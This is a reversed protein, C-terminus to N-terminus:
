LKPGRQTGACAGAGRCGPHTSRLPPKGCRRSGPAAPDGFLAAAGPAVYNVVDAFGGGRRWSAVLM